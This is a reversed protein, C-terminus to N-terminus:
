WIGDKLRWALLDLWALKLELWAIRVNLRYSPGAADRIDNLWSLEDKLLKDM